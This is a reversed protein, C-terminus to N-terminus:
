RAQPQIRGDAAEPEAVHRYRILVAAFLAAVAGFHAAEEASAWANETPVVADVAVAALALAGAVLVLASIAPIRVIERSFISVLAVAVLVYGVVILDNLHAIVPLEDLPRSVVEHAEVFDDLAIWALALGGVLWFLSGSSGAPTEQSQLSWFKRFYAVGLVAVAGSTALKLISVPGLEHFAADDGTAAYYAIGGAIVAGTAFGVPGAVALHRGHSLEHIGELARRGLSPGAPEADQRALDKGVAELHLRRYLGFPMLRLGQDLAAGFLVANKRLPAALVYAAAGIGPIGAVLMIPLGHVARATAIEEPDGHRLMGNVEAKLRFTATWAVRAMSGFPFRLPISMALHAGLHALVAATRADKLDDVAAAAQAESLYGEDQWRRVGAELWGEGMAAKDGWGSLRHAIARLHGPVDFVKAIRRVARSWLRPEERHWIREYWAYKATARALEDAGDDGLNARLDEWNDYIFRWLKKLDIDDFAPLQASRAAGWLRTAPVMPTVVNSELDIIVYNGDDDEMVNGLSRPNYPSVQWTPLGTKIFADTVEHLFQRARAHDKPEGGRVLETVFALRGGKREIAIVPAVADRGLFHQTILGAIRRRYKGAKLAALNDVYPFRTQFAIRYLAEILRNRRYVKVARGSAPELVVDSAIGKVAKPAEPIGHRKKETTSTMTEEGEDQLPQVPWLLALHGAVNREFPGIWAQL